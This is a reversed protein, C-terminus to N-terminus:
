RSPPVIPSIAGVPDPKKKARGTGSSPIDSSGSGPTPVFIVKPVEETSQGSGGSCGAVLASLAFLAVCRLM